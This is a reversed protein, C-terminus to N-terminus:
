IVRARGILCGFRDIGILDGDIAAHLKRGHDASATDGMNILDNADDALYVFASVTEIIEAIENPLQVRVAQLYGKWYEQLSVLAPADFRIPLQLTTKRHDFVARVAKITEERNLIRSNILSYLDHYDKMRSNEGGRYVVTELKEAFIFEPPYCNVTVASEFLPGSRNSLLRFEKEQAYVLDGFGLDIYLPFRSKGFRVEIKIRAGPYPM